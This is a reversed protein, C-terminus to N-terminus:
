AAARSLIIGFKSPNQSRRAATKNIARSFMRRQTARESVEIDLEFGPLYSVPSPHFPNDCPSTSFEVLM